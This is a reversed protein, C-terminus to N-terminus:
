STQLQSTATGAKRVHKLKYRIYEVNPNAVAMMVLLHQISIKLGNHVVILCFLVLFYLSFEKQPGHRRWINIFTAIFFGWYTVLGIIGHEAIARVFENHATSVQDFYRRKVVQTSYNSTGVGIVPDDLFLKFGAMVLVDRNSSGKKQYRKAITGQTQNIVFYYILIGFPIIFLFKVYSGLSAKNFYAYLIIIIGLFYLGGRSFTLIMVTTCVTFLIINLWRYKAEEPNLFSFILLISGLGLYGSLQVPAMGNSSGFNSETNYSIGGRLHAVLVVGTLYIAAIKLYTLLRHILQPSLRNFSSWVIVVIFAYSNI